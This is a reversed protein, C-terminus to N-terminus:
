NNKIFVSNLVNIMENIQIPKSLYGDFGSKLTKKEEGDMAYATQAIIPIKKNIDKIAKTAEYGDIGKLKLDMLIVDYWKGEQILQIAKEGNKVADIEIKTIKLSEKLLEMSYPDDEVILAKKNKWNIDNINITKNIDNITNDLHYKAPITFYFTSGVNYKTEVWIDGGLLNIIGKSIALGLGTGKEDDTRKSRIQGFRKFILNLKDKPIGIGTDKVYFKIIDYEKEISYGFEIYGEKTFKFTNSILNTFVQRLRSDDSVILLDNNQEPIKLKLEIETKELYNKQENFLTYIEKLFSNLNFPKETINLQGAEIKALDIIDNILNLLVKGSNLIIDIYKKRKDDSIDNEKLLEAFGLIGNLPTRIEHSMNALFVSKLRDAEKAKELADKLQQEAYKVSTIDRTIGILQDVEGKANRVGVKTTSVWKPSRDKLILYEEKNILPIGTRVIEQEDNYADQAHETTFYDFDTKGIAEQNDKIGLLDAQANNIRTFRSEKDKFYITDPINDLLVQLLNREYNFSNESVFDNNSVKIFCFLKKENAEPMAIPWTNIDINIGTKNKRVLTSNYDFKQVQAEFVEKLIKDDLKILNAIKLNKLENSEYGTLKLLNENFDIIDLNKNLRIFIFDSNHLVYDLLEEIDIAKNYKNINDM